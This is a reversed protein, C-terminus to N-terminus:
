GRSPPRADYLAEAPMRVAVLVVAHAGFARIADASANGAAVSALPRRRCRGRRTAPRAPWWPPAWRGARRGTCPRRCGARPPSGEVRPPCHPATADLAPTGVADRLPRYAPPLRACRMSRPARGPPVRSAVSRPVSQVLPLEAPQQDHLDDLSREGPQAGVSAPDDAALAGSPQSATTMLAAPPQSHLDDLRRWTGRGASHLTARHWRGLPAWRMFISPDPGSARPASHLKWGVSVM